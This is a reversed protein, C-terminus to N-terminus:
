HFALMFEGPTNILHNNNLFHTSLDGHAQTTQLGSVTFPAILMHSCSSMISTEM